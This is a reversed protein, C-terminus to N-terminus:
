LVGSLRMSLIHETENNETTIMVESIMEERQSPLEDNELIDWNSRKSSINEKSRHSGKMSGLKNDKRLKSDHKFLSDNFSNARFSNEKSRAGFHSPDTFPRTGDINSTNLNSGLPLRMQHKFNHSNQPLNSVTLVSNQGSKYINKQPIVNLGERNEHPLTYTMQRTPSPSVQYVVTRVNNGKPTKHFDNYSSRSHSIRANQNDFTRLLNRSGIVPVETSIKNPTIAM